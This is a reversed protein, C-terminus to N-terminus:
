NLLEPNGPGFHKLIVLPETKSHNAIDIGNKAATESIFFEDSTPQGFRINQSSEIDWKGFKGYGQIVVMGYASGDKIRISCRPFVTLEKASFDHSRYCIWKENYEDPQDEDHSLVPIPVMMRNFVFDPDLNLEWDVLELLFELDGKREEPINKWLFEAPIVTDGTMSEFMSFVDSAKQPEYTCFSGPAHLVGPPIDWGTGIRLRYAKSLETIRNDGNTFNELCHRVQEHSTGANLGMFSFPFNGPHNNMQAPFYYAEPKGKQGILAAYQDNHHLHFPLANQNDFFKCLVPWEGYKKWLRDGILHQKLVDVAERLLIRKKDGKFEVYIYSMGEHYGTDPGNDAPTTSSLWREDIGGRHPGFAYYDDPHLRLRKGPICFARPVWTPLLRFIGEGQDFANQILNVDSM